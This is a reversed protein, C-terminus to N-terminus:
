FCFKLSTCTLTALKRAASCVTTVENVLPQVKRLLKDLESQLKIDNDYVLKLDNKFETSLSKFEDNEELSISKKSTSTHVPLVMQFESRLRRRINKRLVEIKEDSTERMQQQSEINQLESQLKIDDYYVQKLDNMKREENYPSKYQIVSSSFAPSVFKSKYTPVNM